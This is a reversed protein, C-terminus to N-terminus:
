FAYGFMIPDSIKMMTAKLHLSWILNKAKADEITKKYFAKLAAVSMFTGDLVEGAVGDIIKLEKGNLAITVKQDKDLTVSKENGYFDGKGEMHSVYAKSDTAFARLKHPNKQAFKKVAVAARRDSNGERLVPNVASGLCTAYKAAIAKEEDTTPNEPYNPIKHGQSQLEAICDKLQGASASINPLKIINGDEQLVVEGLKSLEDEALGMAALVRGSLSIDSTVVEVGAAKTFANVIPLLSYTALAPAEDIVSWIIKSM